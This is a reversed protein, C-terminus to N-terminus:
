SQSWSTPSPSVVSMTTPSELRDYPWRRRWV